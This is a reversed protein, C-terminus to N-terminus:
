PADEQRGKRSPREEVEGVKGRLWSRLPERMEIDTVSDPDVSRHEYIACVLDDLVRARKEAPVSDHLNYPYGYDPPLERIGTRDVSTAILTSLVAQHLFIRHREDGCAAVQFAADNVLGEFLELWRRMLGAAPRVSFAASNFYPRIRESEVFSEVTFSPDPEGVAGFIGEWFVDPASEAPLGINKIHVPRVAATLSDPLELLVPPRLILCEPILWVLSDVTGAALEEARACASVKGSFLYGGLPDGTSVPFVQVGRGALCDCPAGIPDQELVWVPSRALEGGHARISEILLRACPLQRAAGVSTFFVTETRPMSTLAAGEGGSRRM